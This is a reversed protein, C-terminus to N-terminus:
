TTSAHALGRQFARSESVRLAAPQQYPFRLGRASAAPMARGRWRVTLKSGTADTTASVKYLPTKVEAIGHLCSWEMPASLLEIIWDMEQAWGAARGIELFREALSRTPACAFSCPLHPVARVGV